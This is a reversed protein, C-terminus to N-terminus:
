HLVHVGADLTKEQVTVGPGLALVACQPSAFIDVSTGPSAVAFLQGAVIEQDKPGSIWQPLDTSWQGSAREVHGLQQVRQVEMQNARQVRDVGPPAQKVYQGQIKRFWAHQHQKGYKVYVWDPGPRMAPKRKDYAKAPPGLM